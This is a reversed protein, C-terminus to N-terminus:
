QYSYRFPLLSIIQIRDMRVTDGSQLNTQTLSLNVPLYEGNSLVLVASDFTGTQQINADKFKLQGLDSNDPDYPLEVLVNGNVDKLQLSEARISGKLLSSVIDESSKPQNHMGPLWGTGRRVGDRLYDSLESFKPM